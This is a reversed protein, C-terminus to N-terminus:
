CARKKGFDKHLVQWRCSYFLLCVFALHGYPAIDMVVYNGFHLILLLIALKRDFKKTFFGIVALLEIFVGSLYIIYSLPPHNILYLNLSTRWGLNNEVFYPAFQGALMQSFENIHTIHGYSIKIWASSFYYFLLFYRLVELAYFRNTNKYFIFPFYFLAYGITFNGHTHYGQITVYFLYNIVLGIRAPWPNKSFTCLVLPLSWVLADTLIGAWKNQALFQPIGAAYPVQFFVDPWFKFFHNGQLNSITLGSIFYVNLEAFLVLFLWRYEKYFQAIM